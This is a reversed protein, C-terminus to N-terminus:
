AKVPLLVLQDERVEIESPGPRLNLRLRYIQSGGPGLPGRLEIVRGRLKSYRIRVRDGLKFVLAPKAESEQEAVTKAELDRFGRRVVCSM